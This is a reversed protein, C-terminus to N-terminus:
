LCDSSNLQLRFRIKIKRIELWKYAVIKLEVNKHSVVTEVNSHITSLVTIIV